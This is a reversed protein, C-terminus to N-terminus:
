TYCSLCVGFEEQVKILMNYPKYADYSIEDPLIGKISVNYLNRLRIDSIYKEITYDSFHTLLKDFSNVLGQIANNRETQNKADILSLLIDNSDITEQINCCLM